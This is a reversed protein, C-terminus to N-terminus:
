VDRVTVYVTQKNIEVDQMKLNILLEEQNFTWGFNLKSLLSNTRVPAFNAKDALNTIPSQNNTVPILPVIRDIIEGTTRDKFQRRDNVSFVQELVGNPNLRQEEFPLYAMLGM